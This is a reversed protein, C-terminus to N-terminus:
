GGLTSPQGGHWSEEEPLVVEALLREAKQLYFAPFPM